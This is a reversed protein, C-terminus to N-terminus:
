VYERERMESYANDLNICETYDIHALIDAHAYTSGIQIQTHTYKYRETHTHTYIYSHACKYAVSESARANM